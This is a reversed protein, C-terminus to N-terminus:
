SDKKHSEDAFTLMQDYENSIKDNETMKEGKSKDEKATTIPNLAARIPNLTKPKQPTNM